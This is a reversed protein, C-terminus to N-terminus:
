LEQSAAIQNYDNPFMYFLFFLIDEGYRSLKDKLSALKDKIQHHILYESPVPFDIEYPRLAQESWPGPFSSYLTDSSNLDLKLNTLDTGLALSVLGPDSDAVRLFTLLGIMGFQDTVMGMPINTVRGDKTTQIGRKGSSQKSSVGSSGSSTSSMIGTGGTTSTLSDPSNNNNMVSQSHFGSGLRSSGLGLGSSFHRESESGMDRANSGSGSNNGPASSGAAASGSAAGPLAPFDNYNMDFAPKSYDISSNNNDKVLQGVYNPRNSGPASGGILHSGGGQGGGASSGGGLTPFENIDFTSPPGSSSSGVVPIGFNAGSTRFSSFGTGSGGSPGMTQMSDFIDLGTGRNLSPAPQYARSTLRSSFGALFAANPSGQSQPQQQQQPQQQSQQGHLATLGSLTPSLSRVVSSSTPVSSLPNMSGNLGLTSFFSSSSSSPIIRHSLSGPIPSTM